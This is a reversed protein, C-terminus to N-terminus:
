RSGARAASALAYRIAKWCLSEAQSIASCSSVEGCASTLWKAAHLRWWCAFRLADAREVSTNCTCHERRSPVTPEIGLARTLLWSHRATDTSAAESNAASVPPGAASHAEATKMASGGLVL